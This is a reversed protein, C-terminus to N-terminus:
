YAPLERTGALWRQAANAGPKAGLLDFVRQAEGLDTWGLDSARLVSLARANATLVQDSFSSPPVSAYLDAWATEERGPTIDGWMANLSTSLSPLSRRLLELFTAACGVMVFSNWLCGNSMLRCATKRSPKEWFRCVEFVSSNRSVLPVGPQIWGYSEEPGDPVIGLLVVRERDRFAQTFAIEMCDGFVDDNQFYHDSPFFAVIADREM